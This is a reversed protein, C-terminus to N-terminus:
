TGIPSIPTSTTVVAGEPVVGDTVFRWLAVVLAIVWWQSATLTRGEVAVLAGPGTAEPIPEEPNPKEPPNIPPLNEPSRPDEFESM